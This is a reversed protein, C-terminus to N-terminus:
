IGLCYFIVAFMGDAIVILIIGSVVASTTSDGVATAGTRTQLGRLCGIGAVLMGFVLTKFLGGVLDHTHVASLVQNVFTIFPYGLSLTVVAAGCLGFLNAFITLLPMVLVAAVVRTVVLFRVPDLGMTKLADIEENVKMTGLEAAFASGSRGALIIATILPGLERFLSIAVLNVMFIDAGFKRLPIASQFALILGLLFGIAAIIPLANVGTKEMILLADKWRTKRPHLVAYALAMFLEGIFSIQARIDEWIQVTARGVEELFGSKEPKTKGVKAADAQRFMDLLHQYTEPFGKIDLIGSREHQRRRMELLLSIGAGDCYTIGSADVIIRSVAHQELIRIAERWISGTSSMDLRGALTIVLSDDEQLDASISAGSEHKSIPKSM